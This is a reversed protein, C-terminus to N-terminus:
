WALFASIPKTECLFPGGCRGRWLRIRKASQPAGLADRRLREHNAWAWKLRDKMLSEFLM